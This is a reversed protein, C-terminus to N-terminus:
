IARDRVGARFLRVRGAEVIAAAIGKTEWDKCSEKGNLRFRV